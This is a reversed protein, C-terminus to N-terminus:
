VSCILNAQERLTEEARKRETLDLVFAVGHNGTEDFSAVGWQARARPAM